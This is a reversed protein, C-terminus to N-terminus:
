EDDQSSSGEDETSPCDPVAQKAQSKCQECRRCAAHKALQRERRLRSDRDLPFPEVGKFLEDFDKRRPNGLSLLKM